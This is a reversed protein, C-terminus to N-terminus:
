HIPPYPRAQPPAGGGSAGGRGRDGVERVRAVETRPEPARASLGGAPAAGAGAGFHSLHQPLSFAPARQRAERRRPPGGKTAAERAAVGGWVCVPCVELPCGEAQAHLCRPRAPPHPPCSRSARPPFSSPSSLDTFPSAQVVQASFRARLASPKQGSERPEETM